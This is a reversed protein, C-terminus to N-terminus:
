VCTSTKSARLHEVGVCSRSDERLYWVRQTAQMCPMPPVGTLVYASAGRLSCARTQKPVPAGDSPYTVPETSPRTAMSKKSCPVHTHNKPDHLTRAQRQRAKSQRAGVTCRCDAAFKREFAVAFVHVTCLVDIGDVVEREVGHGHRGGHVQDRASWEGGALCPRVGTLLYLVKADPPQSPETYMHSQSFLLRRETKPWNAVLNSRRRRVLTLREILTNSQGVAANRGQVEVM